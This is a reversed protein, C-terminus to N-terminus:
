WRSSSTGRSPCATRAPHPLPMSAPNKRVHLTGSALVVVLRVGAKALLACRGQRARALLAASRERRCGLEARSAGMWCAHGRGCRYLASEGGRLAVRWLMQGLADKQRSAGEFALALLDCHEEGVQLARHLQEGVPVGLLRPLQQIGDELPHHFGDMVVLARHVLDHAVADHGEEPCRQRMLIM